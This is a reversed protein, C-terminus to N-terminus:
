YGVEARRVESFRRIITDVQTTIAVPKGSSTMLYDLCELAAKLKRPDSVPIGASRLKPLQKQFHRNFLRDHHACVNRLDVLCKLWNTFLQDSSVGFKKSVKTRLPGDLRQYIYSASGFTLFEKMTWITPLFPDSYTERYHKARPDRTKSYTRMFTDLVELGKETSIFATTEYYPHSGYADGLVEAIANRLRLEFEGVASFCVKRIQVDFEYLRLIDKYTTGNEFPKDPLNHIQRRSLFYIRLREYGIKEIKAAAVNPRKVVLGRARLHAVRVAATAHPKTFPTLAM